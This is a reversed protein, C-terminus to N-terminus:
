EDCGSLARRNTLVSVATNACAYRRERDAVLRATGTRFSSNVDREDSKADLAPGSFRPPVDDGDHLMRSSNIASSIAGHRQM